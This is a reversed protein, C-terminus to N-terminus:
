TLLQRKSIGCTESIIHAIDNCLSVKDNKECKLNDMIWSEISELFNIRM